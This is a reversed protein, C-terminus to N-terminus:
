LVTLSRNQVLSLEIGFKQTIMKDVFIKTYFNHAGFNINLDPWQEIIKKVFSLTSPWLM